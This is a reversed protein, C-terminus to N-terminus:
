QNGVNMPNNSGVRAMVEDRYREARPGSGNYARAAERWSRSSSPLISRKHFLWRICTRIWFDYDLHLDKGPNGMLNNGRADRFEFFERLATMFAGGEWSAYQSNTMGQWLRRPHLRDLGHRSYITPSMERIMLYQNAGWSDIAQGLNFRSRIPHKSGSSWTYPPLELHRGSTGMRSEQFLISKVINADLLTSPSLSSNYHNTWHVISMDFRNYMMQRVFMQSLIRQRRRLLEELRRIEATRRNGARRSRWDNLSRINSIVARRQGPLGVDYRRIGSPRDIYPDLIVKPVQFGDIIAKSLTGNWGEINLIAGNHFARSSGGTGAARYLTLFRVRLGNMESSVDNITVAESQSQDEVDVSSESSLISEDPQPAHELDVEDVVADLDLPQDGEIVGESFFEEGLQEIDPNTMVAETRVLSGRGSCRRARYRDIARVYEAKRAGYGWRAWRGRVDVHIYHDGIGVAINCGCADIAQRALDLGSMGTVRIDAAMGSCHRSLTPETGRRHYLAVNYAWSRYGSTVDVPRGLLTRIRQLCDVLRPDIRAMLFQTNGSSTLENVTFNASLPLNRTEAGTDLLPNGSNRPDWHEQDRGTPGRAVIGLCTGSPFCVQNAEALHLAEAGEDLLESDYGQYLDGTERVQHFGKLRLLMSDHSLVGREDGLRRAFRDELGYDSPGSEIVYAYTGPRTSESELNAFELEDVQYPTSNALVAVHAYGGEGLRLLLDGEQLDPGIKEGPRAVIEFYQNFYKELAPMEGYLLSSFILKPSTYTSFEPDRPNFRSEAGAQTLLEGLLSSVSLRNQSNSVAESLYELLSSM